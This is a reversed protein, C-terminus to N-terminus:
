SFDVIPFMEVNISSWIKVVVFSILKEPVKCYKIFDRFDRKLGKTKGYELALSYSQVRNYLSRLSNNIILGPIM